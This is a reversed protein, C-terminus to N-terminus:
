DLRDLGRRHRLLMLAAMVGMGLLFPSGYMLIDAGPQGAHSNGINWSAGSIIVLAITSISWAPRRGIVSRGTLVAIVTALFAAAQVALMVIIIAKM